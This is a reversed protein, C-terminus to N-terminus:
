LWGQRHGKKHTRKKMVRLNSKRFNKPNRDNHHVEENKKIPRGIKKSAVQRHILKGTKNSVPYGSKNYHFTRKKTGFLGM